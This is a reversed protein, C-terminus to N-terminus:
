SLRVNCTLLIESSSSLKSSKQGCGWSRVRAGLAILPITRICESSFVEAQVRLWHYCCKWEEECVVIDTLRNWNGICMAIKTVKWSFCGLNGTHNSFPWKALLQDQSPLMRFYCHLLPWSSVDYASTVNLVGGQWVYRSKSCSPGPNLDPRQLNMADTNERYKFAPSYQSSIWSTILCKPVTKM